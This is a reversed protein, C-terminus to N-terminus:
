NHVYLIKNIKKIKKTGYKIIREVFKWDAEYSDVDLRLDGITSKRVMFNGIDMYGLQFKCEIHQYYDKNMNHIMDCYVFDVNYRGQELFLSVFSPVYYNDDGSMVIWEERSNDLGYNRGTHGWDKNPGDVHSFRIREDDQYLDKVQRYETTLGDIVVHCIWNPNTQLVLSQLLLKLKEPREWTPIIFEIKDM